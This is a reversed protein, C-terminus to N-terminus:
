AYEEGGVGWEQWEKAMKKEELPSPYHTISKFLFDFWIKQIGFFYFGGFGANQEKELRFFGVVRVLHFILVIFFQLISELKREM